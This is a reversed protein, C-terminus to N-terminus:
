KQYILLLTDLCAFYRDNGNNLKRCFIHFTEYISHVRHRCSSMFLAITDRNSKTILYIFSERRNYTIWNWNWCIGERNRWKRKWYIYRVFTKIGLRSKWALRYLLIRSWLCFLMILQHRCFTHKFDLRRSIVHQIIALKNYIESVDQVPALISRNPAM